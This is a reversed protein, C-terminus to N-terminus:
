GPEHPTGPNKKKKIFNFLSNSIIGGFLFGIVLSTIGAGLADYLTM